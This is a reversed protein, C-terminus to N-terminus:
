WSIRSVIQLLRGGPDQTNNIDKYASTVEYSSVQSALTTTNQYFNINNFVNLADIRLDFNVSKTIDIRKAISMDFRTFM